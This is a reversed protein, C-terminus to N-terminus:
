IVIRPKTGTSDSVRESVASQQINRALLFSGWAKFWVASSLWSLWVLLLLLGLTQMGSFLFKTRSMSVLHTDIFGSWSMSLKELPFILSTYCYIVLTVAWVVFLVTWDFSLGHLAPDFGLIREGFECVGGFVLIPVYTISLPLSHKPATWASREPFSNRRWFDPFLFFCLVLLGLCAYVIVGSVWIWPSEPCWGSQFAALASIVFQMIQMRTLFSIFPLIIGVAAAANYVYMVMSVFCDVVTFVVIVNTQAYAHTAWTFLLLTSRLFWHLSMVRRKCLILFVTDILQLVKMYVMCAFTWSIGKDTGFHRQLCICEMWSHTTWLAYCYPIIRWLMVVTWACCLFNWLCLIAKLSYGPRREMWQQLKWVALPYVLAAVVFIYWYDRFPQSYFLSYNAIGDVLTSM